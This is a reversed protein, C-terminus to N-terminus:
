GGQDCGPKLMANRVLGVLMDASRANNLLLEIAKSKDLIEHQSVGLIVCLQSAALERLTEVRTTLRSASLCSEEVSSTSLHSLWLLSSFAFCVDLKRLDSDDVRGKGEIDALLESIQDVFSVVQPESSM